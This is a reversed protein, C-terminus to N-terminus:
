LKEKRKAKRNRILKYVRMGAAILTALAFAVTEVEDQQFYPWHRHIKKIRTARRKKKRPQVAEQPQSM